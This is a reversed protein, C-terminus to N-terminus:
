RKLKLYHYIILGKETLHLEGKSGEVIGCKKLAYLYLSYTRKSKLVKTFGRQQQMDLLAQYLREKSLPGKEGLILIISSIASRTSLTVHALDYLKPNLDKMIEEATAIIKEKWWDRLRPKEHM